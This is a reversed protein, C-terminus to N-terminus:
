AAKHHWVGDAEVTIVGQIQELFLWDTEDDKPCGRLDKLFLRTSPTLRLGLLFPILESEDRPLGLVKCLVDGEAGAESLLEWACRHAIYSELRQPDARLARIVEHLHGGWGDGSGDGISDPPAGITVKFAFGIHHEQTVM